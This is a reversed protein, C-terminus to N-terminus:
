GSKNDLWLELEIKEPVTTVEHPDSSVVWDGSFADAKEIYDGADLEDNCAKDYADQESEAEIFAYVDTSAEATVKYWKKDAM